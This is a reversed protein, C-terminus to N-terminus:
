SMAFEINECEVNEINSKKESIQYIKETLQVFNSKRINAKLKREAHVIRNASSLSVSFGKVKLIANKIANIDTKNLDGTM